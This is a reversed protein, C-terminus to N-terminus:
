LHENELREYKDAKEMWDKVIVGRPVDNQEAQQEIREYVPRPVRITESVHWHQTQNAKTTVTHLM